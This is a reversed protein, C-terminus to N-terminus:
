VNAKACKLVPASGVVYVSISVSAFCISRPICPSHFCQRISSLSNSRMQGIFWFSRSFLDSLKRLFVSEAQPEISLSHARYEVFPRLLLRADLAAFASPLLLM